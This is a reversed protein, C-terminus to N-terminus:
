CGVQSPGMITAYQESLARRRLPTRRRKELEMRKIENEKQQILYKVPYRYYHAGHLGEQQASNELNKKNREDESGRESSFDIEKNASQQAIEHALEVESEPILVRKQSSGTTLTSDDYNGDAGYGSHLFEEKITLKKPQLPKDLELQKCAIRGELHSDSDEDFDTNIRDGDDTCFTNILKGADTYDNECANQIREFNLSNEIQQHTPHVLRSQNVIHSQNYSFHKPQRHELEAKETTIYHDFIRHEASAGTEDVEVTKSGVTPGGRDATHSHVHRSAKSPDFSGQLTHSQLRTIDSADQIEESRERHSDLTHQEVPQKWSSTSATPSQGFKLANRRNAKIKTGDDRVQLEREKARVHEIVNVYDLRGENMHNMGDIDDKSLHEDGVSEQKVETSFIPQLHDTYATQSRGDTVGYNQQRYKLPDSISRKTTKRSSRDRPLVRQMQKATEAKKIEKLQHEKLLVRDQVSLRDFAADNDVKRSELLKEDINKRDISADANLSVTRKRHRTGNLILPKPTRLLKLQEERFAVREKVSLRRFSNDDDNINATNEEDSQSHASTISQNKIGKLADNHIESSSPEVDDIAVNFSMSCIEKQPYCISPTSHCDDNTQIKNSVFSMESRYSSHDNNLNQKQPSLLINQCPGDISITFTTEYITLSPRLLKGRHGSKISVNEAHAPVLRVAEDITYSGFIRSADKLVETEAKAEMSIDGTSSSDQMANFRDTNRGMNPPRFGSAQQSQAGKLEVKDDKIVENLPAHNEQLQSQKLSKCQEAKQEEEEEKIVETSAEYGEYLESQTKTGAQGSKQQEIKEGTEAMPASNEHFELEVSEAAEENLEETEKKLKILRECKQYVDSHAISRSQRVELEKESKEGVEASPVYNKRVQLEATLGVRDEYFMKETEKFGETLSRYNGNLRSQNVKRNVRWEDCLRKENTVNVLEKSNEKIFKCETMKFFQQVECIASRFCDDLLSDVFGCEVVSLSTTQDAETLPTINETVEPSKMTELSPLSPVRENNETPTASSQKKSISSIPLTTQFLPLREISDVLKVKKEPALHM